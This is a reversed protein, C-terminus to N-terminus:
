ASFPVIKNWIYLQELYISICLFKELDDRSAESEFSPVQANIKIKNKFEERM